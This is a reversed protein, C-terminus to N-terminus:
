EAPLFAQSLATDAGSDSYMGRFCITEPAGVNVGTLASCDGPLLNSLGWWAVREITTGGALELFRAYWEAPAAAGPSRVPWGLHFWVIPLTGERLVLRLGAFHQDPVNAPSGNYLAPEPIAALGVFDSGAGGETRGRSVQACLEV